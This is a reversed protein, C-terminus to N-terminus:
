FKFTLKLKIKDCGTSFAGWTGHTRIVAARTRIWVFRGDTEQRNEATRDDIFAFSDGGFLILIM